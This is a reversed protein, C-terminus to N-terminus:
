GNRMHEHGLMWIIGFMVGAFLALYAFLGIALALSDRASFGFAHQWMQDSAIVLIVWLLVIGAAIVLPQHFFSRHPHQADPHQPSISM